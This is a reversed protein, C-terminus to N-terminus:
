PKDDDAIASVAAEESIGCKRFCNIFTKESTYETGGFAVDHCFLYLFFSEKRLLSCYKAKLSRIKGQDM